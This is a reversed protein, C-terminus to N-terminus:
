KGGAKEGKALAQRAREAAKTKPWNRVVMDFYLYAARHKGVRRYYQGIKFQKYAMEEDLTGIKEPIDNKRGEDPYLALFREYYTKATTLKSSDFRYRQKARHQNYALFNDEAMRYLARKGIPGTEWYSAIESWKLYADVYDKRQEYNEAVAIAANLGIGNPEDIGARDSLKEMIAVGEAHGSVRLFHLAVKKRGKLYARAIDYERQMAADAFESGPYDKLLKEYQTLARTYQNRWYHLEGKVFLDLDPGVRDPYENKLQKVVAEAGQANGEQVLKKIETIAHLYQEDPGAATSEWTQGTKLRWTDAVAGCSLAICTTLIAYCQMRCRPM